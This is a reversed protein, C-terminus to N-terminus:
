LSTFPLYRHNHDHLAVGRRRIYLRHDLLHHLEAEVYV